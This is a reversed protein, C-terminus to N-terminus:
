FLKFIKNKYKYLNQFFDSKWKLTQNKSFVIKTQLKIEIDCFYNVHNTIHTSKQDCM